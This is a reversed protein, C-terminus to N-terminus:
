SSRSVGLDLGPAGLPPDQEVSEDAGLLDVGQDVVQCLDERACLVQV